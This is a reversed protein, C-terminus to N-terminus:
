EYAGSDMGQGVLDAQPGDALWTVDVDDTASGIASLQVRVEGDILEVPYKVLRAHDDIFLCEGSEIDFEHQHWPCVLIKGDLGYELAGPAAPLMTGRIRGRCVAGGRHPCLNRMAHWRGDAAWLVGIERDAPMIADGTLAAIRLRGPEFDEPSGLAVTIVREEGEDRPQVHEGDTDLLRTM